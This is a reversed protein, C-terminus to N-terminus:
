RVLRGRDTSSTTVVCYGRNRSHLTSDPVESKISVVGHVKHTTELNVKHHAQALTWAGKIWILQKSGDPFPDESLLLARFIECATTIVTSTKNDFDALKPKGHKSSSAPTSSPTSSGKSTGKLVNKSRGTTAPATKSLTCLTGQLPRIAESVPVNQPEDNDSVVATHHARKRSVTGDTSPVTAQEVLTLSDGLETDLVM